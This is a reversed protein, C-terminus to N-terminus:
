GDVSGIYPEITCWGAPRIHSVFHRPRRAPLQRTGFKSGAATASLIRGITTPMLHHLTAHVIVNNRGRGPNYVYAVISVPLSGLIIVGYYGYHHRHKSCRAGAHLVGKVLHHKKHNEQKEGDKSIKQKQVESEQRHQHDGEYNNNCLYALEITLNCIEQTLCGNFSM